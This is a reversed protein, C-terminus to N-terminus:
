VHNTFVINETSKDKEYCVQNIRRIHISGMITFLMNEKPKTMKQYCITKYINVHNTFVRNDTSKDNKM